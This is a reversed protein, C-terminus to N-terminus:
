VYPRLSTIALMVALCERETASYNREASTLSPSRYGMPNYPGDAQKQLLACGVQYASADTEIIYARDLRPAALLTPDVLVQKLDSFQQRQDETPSGSDTSADKRLMENLPKAIKAYGKVFYRFVNCASRFSRFQTRTQPFEAEQLAQRKEQAM